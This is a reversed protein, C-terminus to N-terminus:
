GNSLQQQASRRTTKTLFSLDLRAHTLASRSTWDARCHKNFPPISFFFFVSTSLKVKLVKWHKQEQQFPSQLEHELVAPTSCSIGCLLIERPIFLTLQPTLAFKHFKPASQATNSVHIHKLEPGSVNTLRTKLTKKRSPESGNLGVGSAIKKKKLSVM